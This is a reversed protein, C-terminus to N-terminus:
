GNQYLVPTHCVSVSMRDHSNGAARRPYFILKTSPVNSNQNITVLFRCQSAVVRETFFSKRVANLCRPKYLDRHRNSSLSPHTLPVMYTNYLPQSGWPLLCNKPTDPRNFLMALWHQPAKCLLFCRYRCSSSQPLRTCHELSTATVNCKCEGRGHLAAKRWLVPMRQLLQFKCQLNEVVEERRHENDLCRHFRNWKSDNSVDGVPIMSILM